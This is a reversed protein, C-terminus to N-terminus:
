LPLGNPLPQGQGVSSGDDPRLIKKVALLLEDDSFPRQLTLDPKLWPCREFELTPPNRTAMIVPIQLHASRLKAIMEVGTMRPMKNDTVVLDYDFTQLAEWGAAGDQVGEAEYGACALLDVSLQRTGQDDDVVLIRHSPEAQGRNSAHCAPKEAHSIENDMMACDRFLKSHNIVGGTTQLVKKVANIFEMIDFPKPLIANIRL